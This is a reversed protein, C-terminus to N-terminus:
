KGGLFFREIKIHINSWARNQKVSAEVLAAQRCIGTGLGRNQM